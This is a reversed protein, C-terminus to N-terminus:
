VCSASLGQHMGLTDLFLIIQSILNGMLRYWVVYRNELQWRWGPTPPSSTSSLQPRIQVGLLLCALPLSMGCKLCYKFFASSMSGPHSSVFVGGVVVVVSVLKASVRAWCSLFSSSSYFSCRCCSCSPATMVVKSRTPSPLSASPLVALGTSSSSGTTFGVGTDSSKSLLMDFTTVGSSSPLAWLYSGVRFIM